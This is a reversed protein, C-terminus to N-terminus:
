TTSLFLETHTGPKLGATLSVDKAVTDEESQITVTMCYMENTLAPPDHHLQVTIRPVRSIIRCPFCVCVCLRVYLSRM